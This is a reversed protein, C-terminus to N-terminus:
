NAVDRGRGGVNSPLEGANGGGGGAIMKLEEASLEKGVLQGMIRQQQAPVCAHQKMMKKAFM